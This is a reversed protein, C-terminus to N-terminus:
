LGEGPQEAAVRERQSLTSQGEGALLFGVAVAPACDSIAAPLHPHAPILEEWNLVARELREALKGLVFRGTGAIILPTDAPLSAASLVKMAADHITRLQAEAFYRALDRWEDEGAEAADRGIMRALRACSAAVTKEGGDATAHLDTGSRLEGLIRYIDAMSAFYENMLPTWAGRFPVRSTVAMLPTRTAGTYVLEGAALREADTYGRAAAQGGKIPILDTTTSGMDAFLADSRGRAVLSASAHWNASATAEIHEPVETLGLWGDRGGYVRVEGPLLTAIEKCLTVV